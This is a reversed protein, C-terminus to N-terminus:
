AISYQTTKTTGQKKLKGSKVFDALSRKLQWISPEPNILTTEMDGLSFWEGPKFTDVLYNWIGNRSNNVDKPELDTTMTSHGWFDEGITFNFSNFFKFWTKLPRVKLVKGDSEINDEDKEIGIILAALRNFISSGIVDDQTLALNREKTLRKRSHHNLVAAFNNDRALNAVNRILPKIETAKDNDATIIIRANPFKGKITEAVLKMNGCNMAAVSPKQTLEYIKAMTAFGEGILIVAKKDDTNVTDLGVAWFLGKTPAGPYFQKKGDESIWQLSQVRGDIDRLPIVLSLDQGNDFLRVGYPYVKKDQLYKFDETANPCTDFKARADLSAHKQKERLQEERLKKEAQLKLQYAESRFYTKQEETFHTDNFKYGWNIPYGVHWDEAWGAPINGDTFICYAGATEGPDDGRVRYRHIQGDIIINVNDIPEIDNVRLFDRFQAEIDLNSPDPLNM